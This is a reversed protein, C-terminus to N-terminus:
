FATLVVLLFVPAALFAAFMLLVGLGPREHEATRHMVVTRLTFGCLAGCGMWTFFAMVWTAMQVDHEDYFQMLVVALPILWAM